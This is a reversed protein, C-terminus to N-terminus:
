QVTRFNGEIFLMPNMIFFLYGQDTFGITDAAFQTDLGTRHITNDTGIFQHMRHNGLLACSAPEADRDTWGITNLEQRCLTNLTRGTKPWVKGPFLYHPGADINM